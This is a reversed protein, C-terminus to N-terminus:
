SCRDIIRELHQKMFEPLRKLVVSECKIEFDPAFHLNDCYAGIQEGFRMSESRGTDCPVSNFQTNFCATFNDFQQGCSPVGSSFNFAGNECGVFLFASFIFFFTIKIM